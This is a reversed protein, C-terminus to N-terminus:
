GYDGLWPRGEKNERLWKLGVRPAQGTKGSLKLSMLLLDKGIRQLTHMTDDAEVDWAYQTPDIM